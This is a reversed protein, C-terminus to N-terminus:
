LLKSIIAWAMPPTMLRVPVASPGGVRISAPSPSVPAPSWVAM